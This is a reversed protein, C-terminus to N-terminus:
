NKLPGGCTIRVSKIRLGDTIKPNPDHGRIVKNEDMDVFSPLGYFVYLNSNNFKLSALRTDGVMRSLVTPVAEYNDYPQLEQMKRIIEEKRSFRGLLSIAFVIKDPVKGFYPYNFDDRQSFTWQFILSLEEPSIYSGEEWLHLLRDITDMSNKLRDRERKLSHLIKPDM